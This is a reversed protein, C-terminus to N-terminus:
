ESESWACIVNRADAPLCYGESGAAVDRTASGAPLRVAAGRPSKALADFVTEGLSRGHPDSLDDANLGNMTPFATDAWVERDTGLAVLHLGFDAPGGRWAQRQRTFARRAAAFGAGHYFQVAKLAYAKTAAQRAYGAQASPGAALAALAGLGFAFGFGRARM